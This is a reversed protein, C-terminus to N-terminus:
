AAKRRQKKEPKKKGGKARNLSEQLIAVLDVVNTAKKAKSREAPLEKGGAAVKEEIVKMVAERYEDTYNEPEWKGSRGEILSEAMKLEKPGVKGNSPLKLENADVLEDAFHMLELVLAKGMPKVAALHERTKIVVKAIGVKGSKELADRLLTYAKDGGKEPALYYPEDFFMPDIEELKVFEKIDVTQTSEIKM